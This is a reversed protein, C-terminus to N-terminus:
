SDRATGLKVTGIYVHGPLLPPEPLFELAFRDPQALYLHCLAIGMDIRMYRNADKKLILGMERGFLHVRQGDDDHLCYWPQRNTASPALRIVELQLDDVDTMKEMGRRVFGSPKRLPSNRARGFAIMIVFELGDDNESRIPKAMGLWCSGLGISQLYLDFQQYRFGVETLAEDGAETWLLAYHPAGWPLLTKIEQRSVIRVKTQIADNLPIVQDLYAQLEDLQKPELPAPDFQRTTKRVFITDFLTM